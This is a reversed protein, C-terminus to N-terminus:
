PPSRSIRRGTTTLSRGSTEAVDRIKREPGVLVPVIMGAAADLAGKLSTEDCPHAVATSIAPIDRAAAILRDYKEHRRTAGSSTDGSM